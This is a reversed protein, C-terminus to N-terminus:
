VSTHTHTPTAEWSLRQRSRRFLLFSGTLEFFNAVFQLFRRNLVSLRSPTEWSLPKKFFTSSIHKEVDAFMKDM